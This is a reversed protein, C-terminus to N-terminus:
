KGEEKQESLGALARGHITVPRGSNRDYGVVSYVIEGSFRDIWADGSFDDGRQMRRDYEPKRVFRLISANILM